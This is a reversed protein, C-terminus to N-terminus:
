KTVEGARRLAFEIERRPTRPSKKIFARVVVVRRGKTSVYLARAIGSRGNMRMEWLPGTLHKVHPGSMRELRVSVILECIRVFRARMDVPLAHLEKDVTANLTEVSWKM